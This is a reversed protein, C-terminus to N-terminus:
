AAFALPVIGLFIMITGHMAGLANYFEPVMVGDPMSSDGLVSAILNGFIPLPRGPYALQWRMLMVLGFGFLLFFFATFMYQYGIMKHDTAFIYKRWFPMVEHHHHHPDQMAEHHPQGKTITDM